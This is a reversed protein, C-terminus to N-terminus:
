HSGERNDSQMAPRVVQQIEEIGVRLSASNAPCHETHAAIGRGGGSIESRSITPRGELPLRSPINTRSPAMRVRPAQPQRPHLLPEGGFARRAADIVTASVSM